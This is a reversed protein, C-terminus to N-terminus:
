ICGMGPPVWYDGCSVTYGNDPCSGTDFTRGQSVCSAENSDSASEWCHNSTGNDGFCAYGDDGGAGDCGAITVGLLAVVAVTLVSLGKM